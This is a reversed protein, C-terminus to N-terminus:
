GKGWNSKGMVVRKGLLEQRCEIRGEIMGIWM